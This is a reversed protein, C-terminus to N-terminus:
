RHHHGQSQSSTTTANGIGAVNFTVTSNGIAVVEGIEIIEVVTNGSGGGGGGGGDGHHGGAVADIEADSLRYPGSLDDM